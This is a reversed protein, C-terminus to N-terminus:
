RKCNVHREVATMDSAFGSIRSRAGCFTFDTETASGLKLRALLPRTYRRNTEMTVKSTTLVRDVSRPRMGSVAFAIVKARRSTGRSNIVGMRPVGGVGRVTHSALTVRHRNVCSFKIGRVCSVTTGLKTTNTTGMANTRFGRPLRTCITSAHAISSVVRNNSLFPPVGRLLRRGNCLINVNVPTLLGRNSFTFFSTSLSAISIEVRPADRTKSIIVITNGRRTLGTVRGMPCRENLIGSIRAVTIVGAEDAM